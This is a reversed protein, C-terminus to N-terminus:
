EVAAALSQRLRSTEISSYADARRVSWALCSARSRQRVRSDTGHLREAAALESRRRRSFGRHGVQGFRQLLREPHGRGLEGAGACRTPTRTTVASGYWASKASVINM